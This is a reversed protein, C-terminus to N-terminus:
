YRLALLRISAPAICSESLTACVSTIKSRRIEALSMRNPPFFICTLSRLVSISMFSDTAFNVPSLSAPARGGNEKEEAALAAASGQRECFVELLSCIKGARLASMPDKAQQVLNGLIESADPGMGSPDQLIELEVNGGQQMEHVVFIGVPHGLAEALEKRLDDKFSGFGDGKGLMNQLRLNARVAVRPTPMPSFSYMKIPDEAAHKSPPEWNQLGWIEQLLASIEDSCSTCDTQMSKVNDVIQDDHIQDANLMKEWLLLAEEVYTVADKDQDKKARDKLLTFFDFMRRKDAVDATPIRKLTVNAVQGSRKLTLTLTSGPVDDGIIASLLTSASVPKGDVEVIFDGKQVKGSLYAPGGIMVNEVQGTGSFMIGVQVPIHLETIYACLFEPMIHYLVSVTTKRTFETSTVVATEVALVNERVRKRLRESLELSRRLKDKWPPAPSKGIPAAARQSAKKEMKVIVQTSEEQAQKMREVESQLAEKEASTTGHLCKLQEIEAEKAALAEASEQRATLVAATQADCASEIELNRRRLKAVDDEARMRTDQERALMQKQQEVQKKASELVCQMDSAQKMISQTSQVVLASHNIFIKKESDHSSQLYEIQARLDKETDLLLNRSVHLEKLDNESKLAHDLSLADMWRFLAKVLSRQWFKHSAREILQRMAKDEVTQVKWLRFRVTLSKRTWRFILKRALSMMSVKHRAQASWASLVTFAAHHMVRPVVKSASIKLSKNVEYRYMWSRWARMVRRGKNWLIARELKDRLDREGITSDLWTRFWCSLGLRTWQISVKCGVRRLRKSVACILTWANFSMMLSKSIGWLILKTGVRRLSKEKTVLQSWRGWAMSKASAVWMSIAKQLALRHCKEHYVRSSWTMLAKSSVTKRCKGVFRKAVKCLMAKQQCFIKWRRYAAVLLTRHWKRMIRESSQRMRHSVIMCSFWARFTKATSRNMVKYVMQKLRQMTEIHQRWTDLCYTVSKYKWQNLIHYFKTDVLRSRLAEQQEVYKRASRQLKQNTQKFVEMNAASDAQQLEFQRREDVSSDRFTQFEETLRACSGKLDLLEEEKAELAKHLEQVVTENQYAFRKRAEEVSYEHWAEIAQGVSRNVWRGVVKM